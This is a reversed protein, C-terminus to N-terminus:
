KKGKNMAAELQKRGEPTLNYHTTTGRRPEADYTFLNLNKKIQAAINSRRIQANLATTIEEILGTTFGTDKGYTAQAYAMALLIRNVQNAKNLINKKIEPYRESNKIVEAIHKPDIKKSTVISEEQAKKKATVTKKPKPGPKRGRTSKPKPGPKAAPKTIEKEAPLKADAQPAAQTQPAAPQPAAPQPASAKSVGKKQLNLLETLKQDVYNLDTTELEVELEGSRFKMKHLEESM